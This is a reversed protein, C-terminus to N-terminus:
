IIIENTRLRRVYVSYKIRILLTITQLIEQKISELDDFELIGKAIEGIEEMVILMWKTLTHAQYPFKKDQKNWENELEIKFTNFDIKLFSEFSKHTM